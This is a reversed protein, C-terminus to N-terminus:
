KSTRKKKAKMFLSIAGGMVLIIVVFAIWSGILSYHGIQNSSGMFIPDLIAWQVIGLSSNKIRYASSWKILDWKVSLPCTTKRFVTGGINLEDSNGSDYNYTDGGVTIFNGDISYSTAGINEDHIIFIIEKDCVLLTQNDSSIYAGKIYASDDGCGTLMVCLFIFIAVLLAAKRSFM